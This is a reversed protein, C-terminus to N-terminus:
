VWRTCLIEGLDRVAKQRQNSSSRFIEGGCCAWPYLTMKLCFCKVTLLHWKRSKRLQSFSFIWFFCSSGSIGGPSITLQSLMCLRVFVGERGNSGWSKRGVTQWKESALIQSRQGTVDGHNRVRPKFHCSLEWAMPKKSDERQELFIGKGVKLWDFETKLYRCNLLLVPFAHIHFCAM